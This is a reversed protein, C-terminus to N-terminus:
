DHEKYYLQTVPDSVNQGTCWARGCFRIFLVNREHFPPIDSYGNLIDFLLAPSKITNNNFYVHLLIKFDKKYRKNKKIRICWKQSGDTLENTNWSFWWRNNCTQAFIPIKALCDSHYMALWMCYLNCIYRDTKFKKKNQRKIHFFRGRFRLFPKISGCQVNWLLSNIHWLFGLTTEKHLHAYM